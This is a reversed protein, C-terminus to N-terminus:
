AQVIKKDPDLALNFGNIGGEWVSFSSGVKTGIVSKSGALKTHLDSDMLTHYLEKPDVKFTVVHHVNKTKM